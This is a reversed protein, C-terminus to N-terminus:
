ALREYLEANKALIRAAAQQFDDAPQATLDALLASALQEVPIGFSQARTRLFEMQSETLELQLQTVPHTYSFEATPALINTALATAACAAQTTQAKL